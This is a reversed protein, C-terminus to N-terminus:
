RKKTIHSSKLLSRNSKKKNSGLILQSPSPCSLIRDCKNSSKIHPKSKDQLGNCCPCNKKIHGRLSSRRNSADHYRAFNQCSGTSTPLELILEESNQLEMRQVKNKFSSHLLSSTRKRKTKLSHFLKDVGLETDVNETGLGNKAASEDESLVDEDTSISKKELVKLPELDSMDSDLDEKNAKLVKKWLEDQKLQPKRSPRKLISRSGSYTFPSSSAPNPIPVFPPKHPCGVSSILNITEVNSDSDSLDVTIDSCDTKSEKRCRTDNDLSNGIRYHNSSETSDGREIPSSIGSSSSKNEELIKHQMRLVSNHRNDKMDLPKTTSSSSIDSDPGLNGRAKFSIIQSHSSGDRTSSLTANTSEEPFQCVPVFRSAKSISPSRINIKYAPRKRFSSKPSMERSDCSSSSNIQSIFTESLLDLQSDRSSHDPDLLLEAEPFLDSTSPEDVGLDECEESLSKQLRLDRELSACNRELEKSSPKVRDSRKFPMHYINNDANNPKKKFCIQSNGVPLSQNEVGDEKVTTTPSESKVICQIKTVNYPWPSGTDQGTKTMEETRTTKARGSGASDSSISGDDCLESQQIDREPKDQEREELENKLLISNEPCETVFLFSQSIYIFKTNKLFM